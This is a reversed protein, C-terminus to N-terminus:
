KGAISTTEHIVGRANIMYINKKRKDSGWIGNPRFIMMLTMMLGYLIMRYDSFARLAEPLIVLIMAGLISGTVNGMGGLVIMSVMTISTNYVFNDPSIFSMYSAFFGGMIGAMIGGIVFAILKYKVPNIGISCAAIEDEQVTLMSMGFGGETLRKMFIVALVAVILITYYYKEKTDIVFNGFQPSPIATIGSPGRTVDVWNVLVLRFIEGFGLTVIALYDGRLRLTPIGLLLGFIGCVAAAVLTSTWFNIGSTMMLAAVYAGLGYFAVHGLSFQGTYGTILNLSLALVIYILVTILIHLIYADTVLFPVFVLFMLLIVTLVMKQTKGLAKLRKLFTM